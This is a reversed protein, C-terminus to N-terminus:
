DFVQSKLTGAQHFKLEWKMLLCVLLLSTSSVSARHSSHYSRGVEGGRWLPSVRSLPVNDGPLRLRWQLLYVVNYKLTRVVGLSFKTETDYEFLRRVCSCKTYAKIANLDM